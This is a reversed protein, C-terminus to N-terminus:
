ELARRTIKTRLQYFDYYSGPGITVKPYQLQYFQLSLGIVRNNLNNSIVTGSFDESTFVMSNTIANAVVTVAAGGNVSRKLRKDTSDWYYRIYSTTNTKLPYIQIANGNQAAGNAIETFATKSGSGIKISGASRIEGVMKSIAARAEDSAGMKARVLNNLKLGFIHVSLVGIIMLSFVVASVLVEPLTFARIGSRAPGLTLHPPFTKM